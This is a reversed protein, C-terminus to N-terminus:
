STGGPRNESSDDRKETDPTPDPLRRRLLRALQRVVEQDSTALLPRAERASPGQFLAIYTKM